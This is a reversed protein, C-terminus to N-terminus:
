AATGKMLSRYKKWFGRVSTETARFNQSEAKEGGMAIVGSDEDVGRIARQVYDGVVGDEMSIFGAPGALNAQKLRRKEMAADDDEFGLYTWNLETEAIGRPLIQRIAICNRIQQVVLGPFVTLIQLSIGDGYEDVADLLSPDALKFDDRNTRIKQDAYDENGQNSGIKSYSVHHGGSEDVIIGGEQSLRNLRFTTFFLHLLSAHYSDKVNEFYIKWNNRLMQTNRGLVRAPRNLVRAIHASIEPGLYDEIPPTDEHFTGFVLGCFEAVRLRRLNHEEPRFDEPMGGRGGIGNRFAIGKLNGNLDYSWSHYVCTIAKANGRRKTCLLAGRHSCRNVFANLAGAKDRVVLISTEGAGSVVYDGSGPLESALCLYNWVPGKYIRDQEARYQDADTYLQYPIETLGAGPWEVM